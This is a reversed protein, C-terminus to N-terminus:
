TGTGAGVVMLRETEVQHESDTRRKVFLVPCRALRLVQEAVSGLLLRRIGSRGHTGIVILDAGIEDAVEVIKAAAPGDRLMREFNIRNDANLRSLQEEAASRVLVVDFPIVIGDAVIPAVPEFVHLAVLRAQNVNAFRCAYDFAQMSTESFDTPFLITKIRSMANTGKTLLRWWLL